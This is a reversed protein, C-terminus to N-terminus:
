FLAVSFCLYLKACLINKTKVSLKDRSAFIHIKKRILFVFEGKNKMLFLYQNVMLVRIHIRECKCLEKNLVCSLMKVKNEWICSLFHREKLNRLFRM